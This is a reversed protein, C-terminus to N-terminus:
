KVRNLTCATLGACYYREPCNNCEKGGTIKRGTIWAIALLVVALAARFLTMTFQQRNM